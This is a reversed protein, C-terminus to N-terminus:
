HVKVSSIRDNWTEGWHLNTAFGTLDNISWSFEFQRGRFFGDEYYTVKTNSYNLVSSINDNEQRPIVPHEGRGFYSARSWSDYNSDLYTQINAHASPFTFIGLSCLVTIFTIFARLTKM